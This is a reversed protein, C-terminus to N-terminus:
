VNSSRTRMARSYSKHKRQDTRFFNEFTFASSGPIGAMGCVVPGIVNVPLRKTWVTYTSQNPVDTPSPRARQLGVFCMAEVAPFCYSEFHHTDPSFGSDLPHANSGRRCDFYFPEKKKLKKARKGSEVPGIPDFVPKTDNMPDSNTPDIARLMANFISREKMSGAWPKISRDSWWDLIMQVPSQIAIPDVPSDDDGEDAGDSGGEDNEVDFRPAGADSLLEGLPVHSFCHRGQHAHLACASSLLEGLTPGDDTNLSSQSKRAVIQFRSRAAEGEFWAEAGPWLRDALEFLGCCAFFQGPNTVDVPIGITPPANSM